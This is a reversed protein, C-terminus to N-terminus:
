RVQKVCLHFDRGNVTMCGSISTGTIEIRVTITDGAVLPIVRPGLVIAPVYYTSGAAPAPFCVQDRAYQAGNKFIYVSARSDTQPGNVVMAIPFRGSVEVAKSTAATFAGTSPDFESLSDIDEVSFTALASSAVAYLDQTGQYAEVVTLGTMNVITATAISFDVTTSGNRAAGGLASLAAASATQGTGGNAIPLPNAIGGSSSPGGAFCATAVTLLFAILLKKMAIM